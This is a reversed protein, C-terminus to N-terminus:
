ESIKLPASTVLKFLPERKGHSFEIGELLPVKLMVDRFKNKAETYGNRPFVTDAINRHQPGYPEYHGSFNHLYTIQGNTAEIEGASVGPKGKAM